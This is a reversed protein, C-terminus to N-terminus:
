SSAPIFVNTNKVTETKVCYQLIVPFHFRSQQQNGVMQGQLGHSSKGPFLPSVTVNM